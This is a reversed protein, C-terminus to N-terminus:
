SGVIGTLHLAVGIALAVTVATVIWVTRWRRPPSDAADIPPAPAPPPETPPQM